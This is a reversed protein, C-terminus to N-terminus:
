YGGSSARERASGLSLRLGGTITHFAGMTWEGFDVRKFGGQLENTVARFGQKTTIQYQGFASLPGVRFELGAVATGFGTSSLDSEISGDAFPGPSNGTTHAIGVGLGIFPQINANRVPYAMLIASYRRIGQFTWNSVGAQITTDGADRIEYLTQTPVDSGFGQDVSLLLGTRKATILIHGGAVPMLDRGGANTRFSTVGGHVGVYWKFPSTGAKQAASPAVVFLSGLAFLAMSQKLIRM